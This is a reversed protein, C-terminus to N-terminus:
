DDNSKSGKINRKKPRLPPKKTKDFYKKVLVKAVAKVASTIFIWILEFLNHAMIDGGKEGILTFIPQHSGM